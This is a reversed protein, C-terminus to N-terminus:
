QHTCAEEGCIYCLGLKAQLQDPTKGHMDESNQRNTSYSLALRPKFPPFHCKCAM